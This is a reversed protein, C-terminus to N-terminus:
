EGQHTRWRGIVPWPIEPREVVRRLRADAHIMGAETAIAFHLQAASLGLLLLDGPKPLDARRLGAAEIAAVVRVADGCRLAYGSPEPGVYGDARLALLALGLCDLGQAVERGHLRFPTGLAARAAALGRSM